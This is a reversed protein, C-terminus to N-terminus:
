NSSSPQILRDLVERVKMARVEWSMTEVRARAQKGLADALDRDRLLRVVADALAAPSEPDVLIGTAGDVVADPVGGTRGAVVPKGCAAAELFVIGFGEVPGDPLDRCPLVFVDCIQYLAKKLEGCVEGAFIVHEAVGLNEAQRRLASEEEGGGGIVYVCQPFEELVLPLAATMTSIGKIPALRSVSLVVRKGEIKLSRAIERCREAPVPQWSDLAIGPPALFVRSKPVGLRMVADAIAHSVAFVAAARQFTRRRTRSLLFGRSGRLRYGVDRGHTFVVYPIRFERCAMAWCDALGSWVGLAAVQPNYHQRLQRVWYRAWKRARIAQRVALLIQQAVTARADAPAEEYPPPLRRVIHWEATYSGDGPVHTALVTHVGSQALHECLHHLYEAVGGPLPKADKSFVLLSTVRGTEQAPNNLM